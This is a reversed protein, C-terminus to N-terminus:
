LLTMLIPVLFMCIRLYQHCGLVKAVAIRMEDDDLPVAQLFKRAVATLAEAPWPHFWNITTCNVLSPYFRCRLRLPDGVPSMALVIHVNARVREIFFKWM